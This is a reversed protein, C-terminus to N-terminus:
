PVGKLANGITGWCSEMWPKRSKETKGRPDSKETQRPGDMDRGKQTNGSGKWRQGERTGGSSGSALERIAEKTAKLAKKKEM